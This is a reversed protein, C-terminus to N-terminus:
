SCSQAVAGIVACLRTRFVDPAFKDLYESKGQEGIQFTSQRNKEAHVIAKAISDPTNDSYIIGKNEELIEEAGSTKMTLCPVGLSLADVVKNAVVMKAKASDGFNGLSLDCEAAIRPALQGNSFTTRNDIFVREELGLKKILQCFPASKADSDGFLYLNIGPNDIKTFAEIIKELGHLPIYTGWWFVNFSSNDEKPVRDFFLERRYDICLPVIVSKSKEVKFNLLSKYHLRESNSMFLIKDAAWLLIKDKWKAISARFTGEKVIKRDMVMTDYCSIYFDVIIRKRFVVGVLVEFITISNFSMPLVIVHSSTLIYFIRLPITLALAIASITYSAVKHPFYFVCMTYPIYSYTIKCDGLVKIINQARYSGVISGSLYIKM